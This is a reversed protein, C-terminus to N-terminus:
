LPKRRGDVFVARSRKGRQYDNASAYVEFHDWHLMDTAWIEGPVVLSRWVKTNSITQKEFLAPATYPTPERPENRGLDEEVRAANRSIWDRMKAPLDSKKSLLYLYILNSKKEKRKKKKKKQKYRNALLTVATATAAVLGLAVLLETVGGIVIPILAAM